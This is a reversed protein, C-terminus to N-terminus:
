KEISEVEEYVGQLYGEPSFDDGTLGEEDMSALFRKEAELVKEVDEKTM